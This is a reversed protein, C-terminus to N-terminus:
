AITKMSKTPTTANNVEEMPTGPIVMAVNPMLAIASALTVIKPTATMVNKKETKSTGPLEM